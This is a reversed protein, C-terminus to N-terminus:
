RSMTCVADACDTRREGAMHDLTDALRPLALEGRVSRPNEFPNFIGPMEAFQVPGELNRVLWLEEFHAIHGMDWVVPSMLRNHQNMLEDEPVPSILLLTRARAELLLAAVEGPTLTRADPQPM